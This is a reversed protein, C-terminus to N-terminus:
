YKKFYHLCVPVFFFLLFRYTTTLADPYVASRYVGTQGSKRTNPLEISYKTPPQTMSKEFTEDVKVVKFNRIEPYTIIKDIM